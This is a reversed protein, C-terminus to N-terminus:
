EPRYLSACNAPLLSTALGLRSQYTSCRDRPRPGPSRAPGRGPSSCALDCEAVERGRVHHELVFREDASFLSNVSDNPPSTPVLPYAFAVYTRRLVFLMMSSKMVRRRPLRMDDAVADVEALVVVREVAVGVIPQEALVLRHHELAPVTRRARHANCACQVCASASCRCSRPRLRSGAPRGRREEAIVRLQEGRSAVEGLAPEVVELTM